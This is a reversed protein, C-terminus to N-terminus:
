SFIESIKMKERWSDITTFMRHERLHEYQLIALILRTLAKQNDKWKLGPYKNYYAVFTEFDHGRVINSWHLDESELRSKTKMIVDILKNKSKEDIDGSTFELFEAFLNEFNDCLNVYNRFDDKKKKLSFRKLGLDDIRSNLNFIRLGIGLYALKTAKSVCLEFEKPYGEQFANENMLQSFIMTEIDRSPFTQVINDGSPNSEFSEFQFLHEVGDLDCDQIGLALYGEKCLFEVAEAVQEKNNLRRREKKELPTFGKGVTRDLINNASVLNVRNSIRIKGLVKSDLKGEVVIIPISKSYSNFLEVEVVLEKLFQSQLERKNRPKNM